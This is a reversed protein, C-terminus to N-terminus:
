IDGKQRHERKIKWYLDETGPDKDDSRNKFLEAPYKQKIYALKERILAATDLELIVAIDLCYILVDALEKKIKEVRAADERVAELEPNDWQFIELLEGAEIAVSKALDGPRLHDWRRETLYELIEQEIDKMATNPMNM